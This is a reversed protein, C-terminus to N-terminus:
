TVINQVKASRTYVKKYMNTIYDQVLCCKCMIHHKKLLLRNVYLTYPAIAPETAPKNATLQIAKPPWIAAALPSKPKGPLSVVTSCQGAFIVNGSNLYKNIKINQVEYRLLHYGSYGTAM